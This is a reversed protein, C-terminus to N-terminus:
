PFHSNKLQYTNLLILFFLTFLIISVILSVLQASIRESFKWFFGSFAKKKLNVTKKEADGYVLDNVTVGYLKALQILIYIDPVGNGSEWKSISKDSYNIKEALEAQTLGASKRYYTLNKVINANIEHLNEM